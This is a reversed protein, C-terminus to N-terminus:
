YSTAGMSIVKDLKIALALSNWLILPVALRSGGSMEGAAM